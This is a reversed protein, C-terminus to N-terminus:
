KKKDPVPNGLADQVTATIINTTSQNALIIPLYTNLSISVPSITITMLGSSTMTRTLYGQTSVYNITESRITSGEQETVLYLGNPLGLGPQPLIQNISGSGLNFGVTLPAVADSLIATVTKNSPNLTAQVYSFHPSSNSAQQVNLWYYPKSEDTTAFVSLPKKNVTFQQLFNLVANANPEYCHGSEGPCSAGVVTDFYIVALRDPNHSNIGDRLWISHTDPVLVDDVSHTISIPMHVYNTTFNVSSRRQYCFPNQAPTQPVGNVHCEKRMTKKYFSTTGAYNYWETMNSPGKNDFVAAFIHPYKAAVITDLQAGMSSGALYIRNPDVNYHSLMYKLIGITDYQSELSAYAYAGPETLLKKDEFPCENPDIPDEYCADPIPWSGHLEPSALLWGRAETAAGYLTIGDMKTGTRGHLAIILPTPTGSSYGTPVQVAATQSSGDYDNTFMVIDAATTEETAQSNAATRNAAFDGYLEFRIASASWTDAPDNNNTLAVLNQGPRLLSPDINIVMSEGRGCGAETSQAPVAAVVQGNVLVDQTTSTGAVQLVLKAQALQGDWGLNITADAPASAEPGVSLCDIAKSATGIIKGNEPDDGPGAALAISFVGFIALSLGLWLTIGIRFQNKFRM